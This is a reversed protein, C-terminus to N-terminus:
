EEDSIWKLGFWSCKVLLTAMFILWSITLAETGNPRGIPSFFSIVGLLTLAFSFEILAMMTYKPLEMVTAIIWTIMDAFVFGIVVADKVDSKNGFSIAIIGLTCFIRFYFEM